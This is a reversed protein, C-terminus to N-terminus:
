EGEGDGDGEGDEAALWARISISADSAAPLPRMRCGGEVGGTGTRAHRSIDDVSARVGGEWDSHCDLGLEAATAM